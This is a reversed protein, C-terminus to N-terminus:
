GSLWRRQLEMVEADPVGVSFHAAVIRWDEDERRFVALPRTVIRTEGFTMIPEDAAWGM